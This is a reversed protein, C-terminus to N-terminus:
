KIYFMKKTWKERGIKLEYLYVGTGVMNGLADRGRWFARHLGAELVGDILACNSLDNKLVPQKKYFFALRTREPMPISSKSYIM